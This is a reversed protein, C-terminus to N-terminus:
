DYYALDDFWDNEPEGEILPEDRVFEQVISIRGKRGDKTVFWIMSRTDTATPYVITGVPLEATTYTGDAGSLEVRLPRVLKGPRAFEDDADLTWTWMDDIPIPVFPHEASLAYRKEGMRSGLALVHCCFMIGNASANAVRFGGMTHMSVAQEADYYYLQSVYDSSSYDFETIVCPGKETDLLWAFRTFDAIGYGGQDAGDLSVKSGDKWAVELTLAQAYQWDSVTDYQALLTVRETEGDGDWDLAYATDYEMERVGLIPITAEEQAPGACGVLLMVLLTCLALRWRGKM